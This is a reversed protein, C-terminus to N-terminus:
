DANEGATEEGREELNEVLKSAVPGLPHNEYQYAEQTRHVVTGIGADTLLELILAHHTTGNIVHTRYVGKELATICSKLKPIMGTSLVGSAVMNKAEELTMNSILTSKDDFDEYIGDVDTLFIAKQAGIAAAIEGAVHDANVNYYGGDEGMAVSAIVPIYGDEILAEILDASVSTVRGVRGLEPDEQCAMVTGGDSGSLGVALNGHKNMATVLEQNVQGVLVMKVVDMAEDTTVRLGNRFEVPLDFKKMVTSIATGGGHVLVPNVGMLKLLVIDSMVDARLQPDVMAAGGYKIVVTKGTINKIWPLAEALLQATEKKTVGNPRTDKALKM